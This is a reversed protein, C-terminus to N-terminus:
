KEQIAIRKNYWNMFLSITLSITLYTAMTIGVIEIARGTQMMATGAFVLVLDREETTKKIYEDFIGFDGDTFENPKRLKKSEKDTGKIKSWNIFFINNKFLKGETLNNKDKLSMDTGENFYDYLKDKGDIWIYEARMAMYIM